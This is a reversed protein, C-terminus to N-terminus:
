DILIKPEQDVRQHLARQVALTLATRSPLFEM